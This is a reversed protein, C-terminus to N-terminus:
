DTVEYLARSGCTSKVSRVRRGLADRFILEIKSLHNKRCKDQEGVAETAHLFRLRQGVISFRFYFSLVQFRM